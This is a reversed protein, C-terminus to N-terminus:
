LWIANSEFTIGLFQIKGGEIQGLEETPSFPMEELFFIFPSCIQTIQIGM